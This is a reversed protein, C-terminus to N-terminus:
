KELMRRTKWGRYAFLLPLSLRMGAGVLWWFPNSSLTLQVEDIVKVLDKDKQKFTHRHVWEKFPGQLQRDVFGMPSVDEIRAVWRIPLLLLWMTFVM